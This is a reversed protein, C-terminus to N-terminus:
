KTKAAGRVQHMKIKRSIQNLSTNAYEYISSLEWRKEHVLSKLLVIWLAHANVPLVRHNGCVIDAGVKPQVIRWIPYLSM